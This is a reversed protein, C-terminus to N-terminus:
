DGKKTSSCIQLLRQDAYFPQTQQTTFDIIAGAIDVGTICEIGQEGTFDPSVNIELLMPGNKSRLLDVGAVNIGIAATAALAMEEEERTLECAGATGGLSINARFDGDDSHREMAAVVKGGVVFARIDNGASESVFRQIVYSVKLRDFTRVLNDLEKPTQVVFVGVGETSDILKVVVPLGTHEALRCFEEPKFAICTTPFPLGQALLYQLCKLKDRGLRLADPAESVYTKSCIFQQIVNIGYDSCGVNLRPIVVDFANTIDMDAVYAKPQHQALVLSIDRMNYIRAQHGRELAAEVLRRDEKIQGTSLICINM